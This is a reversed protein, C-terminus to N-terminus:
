KKNDGNWWWTSMAWDEAAYYLPFNQPRKLDKDYAVRHVKNHWHPIAYYGFLLVRDLLKSSVILDSRKKSLLIKEIIEDVFPDKLGIFNDSGKQDASLSGFRFYLENGPNQSSLYWHVLMDFEFNDIRKKYLSIDTVRTKATIGLKRLNRSFPAVVREWGRSDLLIEFKFKQGEKNVLEGNKIKWGATELLKKAERLNIRLAGNGSNDPPIPVSGLIEPDFNKNIKKSIKNLLAVELDSATGSAAMQSNTFYSYSRIYQNYFLQRNMWEFDMALTIAKRVNKDKFIPNRINFIYGQMGAPNSNPFEKKLREGSKFAKGLYSRAWNKSVNEHIFDFEDAKFAELRAFADKYYKFSITSFNFQNTRTPHSIGWYDDRKEFMISKGLDLKKVKYPGTAIPFKTSLKSFDMDALWKSSFVPLSAIIMHLERNKKRFNFRIKYESMVEVSKVDAWYNRWIPSSQDSVLTKYSFEVDSALVPDDNSFKADPNILFTMSLGDKSLSMKEAILGYMTMPEDLSAIALPEFVLQMLGRAPIGKLTFPNVKDFSGMAALRLEGGSKAKSSTYDFFRFNEAYKPETGLAIASVFNSAFSVSAKILFILLLIIFVFYFKIKKISFM